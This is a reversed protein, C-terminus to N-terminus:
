AQIARDRTATQTSSTGKSRQRLAAFASTKAPKIAGRRIVQGIEENLIANIAVVSDIAPDQIVTRAAEVLRVTDARIKDNEVRGVLKEIQWRSEHWPDALPGLQQM